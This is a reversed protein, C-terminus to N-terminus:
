RKEGKYEKCSCNGGFGCPGKDHEFEAHRCDKCRYFCCCHHSCCHYIMHCCKCETGRHQDDICPDANSKLAPGELALRAIRGSANESSGDLGPGENKYIQELANRLERVQLNAHDLQVQLCTKEDHVINGPAVPKNCCAWNM